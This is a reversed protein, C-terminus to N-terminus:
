LFTFESLQVSWGGNEDEVGELFKDLEDGTAPRMVKKGDIDYGIHPLDDYWYAPV